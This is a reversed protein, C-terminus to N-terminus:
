GAQSNFVQLAAAAMMAAARPLVEEDFDFRPHHHPADLGRSANSSGIFFYCGPIEQQFFAMDESGMTQHATDIEAQPFAAQLAAQVQRTVAPDNVVAPTISHLEIEATCGMATAIGTVIQEFRDLVLQRVQPEFSRITGKMEASHPIVNHAEGAKLTTVSVVASKLPAVNRSVITQLSTIIQASAALPDV